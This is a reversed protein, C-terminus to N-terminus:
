PGPLRGRRCQEVAARYPSGWLSSSVMIPEDARRTNSAPAKILADVNTAAAQLL